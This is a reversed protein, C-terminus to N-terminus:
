EAATEPTMPGTGGFQERQASTIARSKAIEGLVTAGETPTRTYTDLDVSYLGFRPEYGEAWEFNDTLSWHYYGRVDAGEEIARYIQELSRVVHEARRKGVRTALGSESVTMPLDPWRESFDKLVNYIGPEYYEYNMDPVWKTEDEPLLCSGLDYGGFCVMADVGPLIQRDGSVSLRSYYQVGLWDLKGAWTPQEEEYTMDLDSDFQGRRLSEVFVYHYANKVRDRAAIDEPNDSVLNDRAPLWEAVSSPLGWMPPSGMAMPM